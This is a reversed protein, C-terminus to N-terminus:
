FVLSLGGKVALLLAKNALAGSKPFLSFRSQPRPYFFMALNIAPKIWFQLIMKDINFYSIINIFKYTECPHPGSSFAVLRCSIGLALLIPPLNPRLRTSQKNLPYAPWSDFIRSSTLKWVSLILLLNCGRIFPRRSIILDLSLLNVALPRIM